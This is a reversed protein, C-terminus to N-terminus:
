AAKPIELHFSSGKGIASNIELTAGLLTAREKLSRLGIGGKKLATELEFGVGNDEINLSIADPRNTLDIIVMSAKSHKLMNNVVEQSIKYIEREVVPNSIHEKGHSKFIFKLDASLGNLSECLQNLAQNLGFNVMVGSDLDHSIRRVEDCTIDILQNLENVQDNSAREKVENGIAAFQFKLASLMSGVQDHLDRSIRKREKEQGSILANYMKVEQEGLLADVKRKALEKEQKAIKANQRYRNLFFSLLFFIAISFGILANRKAKENEAKANLLEIQQEKKETEYLTRVESITTIKDLNLISDKLQMLKDQYMAATQYDENAIHIKSLLNVNKFEQELDKFSELLVMADKSYRLASDIVNAEYFNLAMNYKSIALQYNLDNEQYYDHGIRYYFLALDYNGIDTYCLALNSCNNIMGSVFELEEDIQYANKYHIIAKELSDLYYYYIGWSQEVNSRAQLDNADILLGNAKNLYKRASVFDEYEILANALAVNLLIKPKPPSGDDLVRLGETFYIFASDIKGLEFYSKAILEIPNVAGIYDKLDVRLEFSRHFYPLAQEFEGLEYNVSGLRFLAYSIKISDNENEGEKLLKKSLVLASDPYSNEISVIKYVRNILSEQANGANLSAICFLGILMYSLWSKM